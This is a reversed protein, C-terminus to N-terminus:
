TIIIRWPSLEGVSKTRTSTEYSPHVIDNNYTETLRERERSM